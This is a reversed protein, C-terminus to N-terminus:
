FRWQGFLGIEDYTGTAGLVTTGITGNSTGLTGPAFVGNNTGLKDRKYVLSLDVIKAPSYTVGFNYYTDYRHPALYVSPKATDYRGFIAFKPTINYMGFGSYGWAVNEAGGLVIAQSFDKAWFYEAGIHFKKDVYGILANLRTATRITNGPATVAVNQLDAALKGTYGGVAAVAGMYNLAVRGELDVSNSRV